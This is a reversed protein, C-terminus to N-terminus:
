LLLLFRYHRCGAIYDLTFAISSFSVASIPLHSFLCYIKIDAIFIRCHSFVLLCRLLLTFILLTAYRIYRLLRLM